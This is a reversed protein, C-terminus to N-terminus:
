VVSKRDRGEEDYAQMTVGLCRCQIEGDLVPKWPCSGVWATCVDTGGSMSCLWLDERIHKYVYPYVEPPLPSGTSGISRLSMLPFKERINLGKKMCTVLFPASTGFHHIPAKEALDWLTDLSPWAPSGEYLVATAGVLLSAHLLNWMMWGTTSYWFFNEGPRVDNHLSLYKFHELLMGGHSHTIAKPM